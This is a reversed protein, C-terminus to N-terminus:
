WCCERSVLCQNLFPDVGTDMGYDPPPILDPNKDDAGTDTYASVQPALPVVDERKSPSTPRRERVPSDVQFRRIAFVIAALTGAVILTSGGALLIYLWPGGDSKENDM